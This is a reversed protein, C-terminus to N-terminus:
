RAAATVARLGAVVDDLGALAAQELVKSVVPAANGGTVRLIEHDLWDFCREQAEQAIRAGITPGRAGQEVILLRGTRRLSAEVTTWDMGWPDVTRLDIVEADIGSEEAAQVALWVMKSYAIVTCADGPRVVKPRGIPVIYDLDDKPIPGESPFLDAHEMVMVPDDCRVAANMLGIYYFPTSPALIRWGPYLAFLGCADGMHQSGYGTGAAVRSRVVIPVPFGGGFMHRVKAVGNFLADAAVLFFDPFMVEVIPRLGNLAAGLAMGVFGNECIPTAIVREPFREPLGRTAGHTGGRLRHIDEGLVIVEPFRELNRGLATAMCDQYKATVMRASPVDEAECARADALEALDGRIGDDATAPDPWLAAVIRRRNSDPTPETLSGAAQDCLARCRRDIDALRAETVVGRAVLQRPFHAVPDRARWAEEEAKDRYGFASGLTAGQQHFFRYTLCEIFVPGRAERITRCAWAMARRVALMDMGDVEIAPIGLGQARAGLRTERTQERVHTSVAYFNNELFFVVPLDYLAALNMAEYAAGNMLTGDGFFTVSVADSGKLKDALAYGVAHPLNSGISASSGVVGAEAYRLHMSGGRGGCYGPALGLIEAMTRRVVEAMDPSPAQDRPDYGAATAHNLAKALFQHHMRHTGNIKDAGTLVSMAGVAGAEQGISAHAPGHVLKESWLELIVEEFRRILLLQELDRALDRAAERKWDAEGVEFRAWITDTKLAKLRAM